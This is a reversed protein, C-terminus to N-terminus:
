WIYNVSRHRRCAHRCEWSNGLVVYHAKWSDFFLMLIDRPLDMNCVSKDTLSTGILAGVASVITNVFNLTLRENQTKVGANNFLITLFYRCSILKLFCFELELYSKRVWAWQWVMALSFLNSPEIVIFLSFASVGFFGMLLMM